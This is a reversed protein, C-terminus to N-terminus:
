ILCYCFALFSSYQPVMQALRLWIYIHNRNNTCYFFFNMFQFHRNFLESQKEGLEKVEQSATRSPYKLTNLICLKNQTRRSGLGSGILQRDTTQRDTFTAYPTFSKKRVVLKESNKQPSLDRALVLKTKLLCRSQFAPDGSIPM